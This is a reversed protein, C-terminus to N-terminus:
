DFLTHNGFSIRDNIREKEHEASEAIVQLRNYSTTPAISALYSGILDLDLRLDSVILSLKKAIKEEETMKKAM